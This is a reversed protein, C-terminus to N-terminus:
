PLIQEPPSHIQRHPTSGNPTKSLVDRLATPTIGSQKSIFRSFGAASYGLAVATEKISAPGSRGLLACALEFRKSQRLAAFTTGSARCAAEITHRGVRVARSVDRLSANADASLCQSVAALLQTQSYAM